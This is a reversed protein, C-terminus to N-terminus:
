FYLLGDVRSTNSNKVVLIKDCYPGMLGSSYLQMLAIEDLNYLIETSVRDCLRILDNSLDDQRDSTAYGLYCGKPIKLNPVFDINRNNIEIHKGLDHDTLLLMKKESPFGKNRAMFYDIIHFWGVKEASLKADSFVFAGIFDHLSMWGGNFRRSVVQFVASCHIVRERIEKTNTDIAFIYDYIGQMPLHINVHPEAIKDIFLNSIHKQVNEEGRTSMRKQEVTHPILANGDLGIISFKGHDFLIGSSSVSKDFRIEIVDNIPKKQTRKKKKKKSLKNVVSSMVYFRTSKLSITLKGNNSNQPARCLRGYLM